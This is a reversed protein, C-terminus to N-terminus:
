RETVTYGNKRVKALAKNIYKQEFWGPVEVLAMSYKKDGDKFDWVFFSFIGHLRDFLYRIIEPNSITKPKLSLPLQKSFPWLPPDPDSVESDDEWTQLGIADPYYLQTHDDPVYTWILDTLQVWPGGRPRVETALLVEKDGDLYRIYSLGGHVNIMDGDMDIFRSKRLYLESSLQKKLSDLAQPDLHSFYFKKEENDYHVVKGDQYIKVFPPWLLAKVSMNGYSGGSIEILNNDRLGARVPSLSAAGIVVLLCLGLRLTKRKM